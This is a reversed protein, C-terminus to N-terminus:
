ENNNQWELLLKILDETYIYDEKHHHKVLLADHGNIQHVEGILLGKSNGQQTYIRNNMQCCISEM